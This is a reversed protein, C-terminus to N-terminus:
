SCALTARLNGISLLLPQADAASLVGDRVWDTLKSALGRLQGCAPGTSGSQIKKAINDLDVQLSNTQGANLAGSARLATARALLNAVVEAPSYVKVQFACGTQNQAVDTVTCTVSTQTGVGFTSGSAPGCAVQPTPDCVDSATPAFTVATGAPSVPDVAVDAPCTIAPATTDAVTVQSACTVPHGSGDTAGCSVATAGLAFSSGSAPSCQATLSGWCADSATASYTASAQRTGTCEVTQAAPCTISPATTDAVTVQSGCSRQLQSGDTATCSVATAGLAFSSGSAPSCQPTLSGWCTDSATATFSASARQSGTCEVTQAAPCTISPATTDAVTVQSSCSKQLQSGDTATCSVATAGLAFSSGSAPSCQPTLSGWCTDSATATFSASAQQSGACEVTQAAPCSITPVTTDAVNVSFSCSGPNGAADSAQCSVPTAGLSFSAGSPPACSASPSATCNDETAVLFFANAAQNGSCELTPSSPCSLSPGSLDAVTVNGTCSATADAADTCTLTVATTGLGYPGAPSQVCSPVDGDVDSSGNDISAAATCSAGADVTVDKCRAEPPTNGATNFNVAIISEILGHGPFDALLIGVYKFGDAPQRSSLFTADTLYQHAMHNVGDYLVSCTGAFPAVCPLEEHGDCWDYDACTDIVGRTLGTALRPADTGNSSHGSAFFYPFGVASEGDLGEASLYNRFITPNTSARGNAEDMQDAVLGWKRTVDGLFDMRYESEPIGQDDSDLDDLGYSGASSTVVVIKGRMDALRPNGPGVNLWTVTGDSTAGSIPVPPDDTWTGGALVCLARATETAVTCTGTLSKTCTATAAEWTGSDSTCGAEDNVRASFTSWDPAQAGSTGSNQAQQFDGNSDVVVDRAAYATSATWTTSSPKVYVHAAYQDLIAQLKEDFNSFDRPDGMGATVDEKKIAMIVTENPHAQLFTVTPQMVDTGFDKNQDFSGHFLGLASDALATSASHDEDTFALRIDWYRIGAELQETIPLSQTYVMDQLVQPAAALVPGLVLVCPPCVAAIIAGVGVLGLTVELGFTLDTIDSSYVSGTDHTGPISIQGLLRSSPISAMWDSNDTDATDEHSYATQIVECTTGAYELGDACDFNCDAGSAQQGTGACSTDGDGGCCNGFTSQCYTCSSDFAQCTGSSVQYRLGTKCAFNCGSGGLGACSTQGQDGCCVGAAECYSCPPQCTGLRLSLGDKCAFNCGSGGLGACSTQGQDGCCVGVAECYSCPPQCTGLRLELGPMCTSPCDSFTTQSCFRQGVDGCCGLTPCNGDGCWCGNDSACDARASPVSGLACVITFLVLAIRLARRASETTRPSRPLTPM